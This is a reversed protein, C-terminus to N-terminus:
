ASKRLGTKRDVWVQEASIDMLPMDSKSDSYVRVVRPIMKNDRAWADLAYVKNKGWCLYKYKWPHADDMESCLVADFKIDRVLPRLLYNPSASALVVMRGAAREAAVQERAWGFRERKHQKIFGPAFKKVMRPTLFRRINERWWIGDPNISAVIGAVGMLPLYLWPRLSHRFCYKAFEVNSDLASLTGDFDFVVVDVKQLM